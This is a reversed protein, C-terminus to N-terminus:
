LYKHMLKEQYKNMQLINIQLSTKNIVAIKARLAPYIRQQLQMHVECGRYNAPHNGNCNACKVNSNPEKRSCDVPVNSVDQISAVFFNQVVMNKVNRASHFKENSM